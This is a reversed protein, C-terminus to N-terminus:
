GPGHQGFQHQRGLTVFALGKFQGRQIVAAKLRRARYVTAYLGLIKEGVHAGLAALEHATCRGIGSGGGTVVIVKGAFLGSAFVSGYSM